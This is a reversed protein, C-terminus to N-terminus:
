SVERLERKTRPRLGLKNNRRIGRNRQFRTLLGATKELVYAGALGGIAGFLADKMRKSNM